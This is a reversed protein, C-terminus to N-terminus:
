SRQCTPTWSATTSRPRAGVRRLEKQQLRRAAALLAEAEVDARRANSLTAQAQLAEVL